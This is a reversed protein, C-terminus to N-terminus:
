SPKRARLAAVGLGLARLRLKMDRYTYTADGRLRGWRTTHVNVLASPQIRASLGDRALVALARQALAIQGLATLHVRDAMVLNRAHLPRLDVVLVGAARAVREITDDLEGVKAGAAPLGLKLPATVTLVRDCREGLFALATSFDREFRAASWDVGRVDNVGIYLCGLEFRAEPDAGRTVFAPIQGNVVDGVTAGDVAYSTFPLGLGRAVWLAWSQLAIGWQLDGGGNTISDGFALVGLRCQTQAPSSASL